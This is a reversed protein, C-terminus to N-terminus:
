LCAARGFCVLHERSCNDNKLFTFNSVYAPPSFIKLEHSCKYGVSAYPHECSCYTLLTSALMKVHLHPLDLTVSVKKEGLKCTLISALLERSFSINAAWTCITLLNQYPDERLHTQKLLTQPNQLVIYCNLVNEVTFYQLKDKPKSYFRYKWV